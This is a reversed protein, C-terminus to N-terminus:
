PSAQGINTKMNNIHNICNGINNTLAGM